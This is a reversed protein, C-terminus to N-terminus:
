EMFICTSIPLFTAIWPLPSIAWHGEVIMCAHKQAEIHKETHTHAQTHQSTPLSHDERPWSEASDLVTDRSAAEM